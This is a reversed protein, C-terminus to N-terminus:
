DPLIRTVDLSLNLQFLVHSKGDQYEWNSLDSLKYFHANGNIVMTCNHDFHEAIELFFFLFLIYINM